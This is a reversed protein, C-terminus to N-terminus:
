LIELSQLWLNNKKKLKPYRTQFTKKNRKILERKILLISEETKEKFELSDGNKAKILFDLLIKLEYTTMKLLEKM